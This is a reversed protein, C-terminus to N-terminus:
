SFPTPLRKAEGDPQFLSGVGKEILAASTIEVSQIPDTFSRQTLPSFQRIEDIEDGFFDLRWPWEADPSYVDLVSGRRSFEGALEVVETRKFGHEVLWAALADPDLQEKVQLQRRQQALRARDPVPQALAQITTLVYPPPEKLELQRLVRLRQGAVEDLVTAETPLNDWAPFIAPRVGAFSALDEAWGDVDRPFSIVVLLTHPAHLGLAAAVLASSSGWAGDVTAGHGSKLAAVLPHFGEATQVLRTLDKLSDLTRLTAPEPPM